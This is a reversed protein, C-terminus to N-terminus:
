GCPRRPHASQPAHAEPTEIKSVISVHCGSKNILLRLDRVDEERLVFSFAPLGVGARILKGLSNEGSSATGVAPIIKTRRYKLLQVRTDIRM